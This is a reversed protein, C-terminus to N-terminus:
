PASAVSVRGTLWDIQILRERRGASLRLLGGSTSGDPQFVIGHTALMVMSVGPGLVVHKNDVEFGRGDPAALFPVPRSETMARSRALRLAGSVRAVASSLELTTNRRPLFGAVIGLPRQRTDALM